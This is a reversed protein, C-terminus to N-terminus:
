QTNKNILIETSIYYHRYNLICKLGLHILFSVVVIPITEDSLYKAERINIIRLTM